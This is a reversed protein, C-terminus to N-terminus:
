LIRKWMCVALYPPLIDFAQGGGVYNTGPSATGTNNPLNSQIIINHTHNGGWTTEQTTSYNNSGGTRQASGGTSIDTRIYVEHNHAGSVQATASHTHQPVSHNHANVTHSHSPINEVRLTVRSSGGTQGAPLTGAGILFRNQIEEWEGGFFNAPNVSNVSIYISGIPYIADVITSLSPIIKFVKTVSSVQLNDIRIQYLPFEDTIAGGFIDGSICQAPTPSIGFNVSEGKKIILKASEVGNSTSKSYRMAVVDIRSKNQAGNEIRLSETSNQPISIHRGQMVLDGSQIKILNNSELIYNLKEATEMVYSGNGCVGANFRGADASTVHGAGAYGTIIRVAM